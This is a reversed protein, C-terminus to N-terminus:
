HSHQPDSSLDELKHPLSKVWQATEIEKLPSPNLGHSPLCLFPTLVESCFLTEGGLRRGCGQRHAQQRFPLWLHGTVSNRWPNDSQEARLADKASSAWM